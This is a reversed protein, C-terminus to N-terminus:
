EATTEDTNDAKIKTPDLAINISFSYSGNGSFSYGTYKIGGIMPKDSLFSVYDASEQKTGCVCDLSLSAAAKNYDVRTVKVNAYALIINDLVTSLDATNIQGTSQLSNSQNIVANYKTSTDIISMYNNYRANMDPDNLFNNLTKIQSNVSAVKSELYIIPAAIVVVVAATILATRRKNQNKIHKKLRLAKRYEAFLDVFCEDLAWLNSQLSFQAHRHTAEALAALAHEFWEHGALLPEGGHFTIKGAPRERWLEGRIFHASAELVALPM